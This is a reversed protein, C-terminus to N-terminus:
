YDVSKRYNDRGCAALIEEVCNFLKEFFDSRIFSADYISFEFLFLLFSIKTQM